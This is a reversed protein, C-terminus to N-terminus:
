AKSGMRGAKPKSLFYVLMHDDPASDTNNATTAPNIGRIISRHYHATSTIIHVSLPGQGLSSPRAIRPKGLGRSLYAAAM